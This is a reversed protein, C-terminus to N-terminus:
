VPIRYYAGRAHLYIQCCQVLQPTHMNLTVVGSDRSAFIEYRILGRHSRHM